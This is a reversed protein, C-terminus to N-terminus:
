SKEIMSFLFFVSVTSAGSSHSLIIFAHRTCGDGKLTTFTSCVSKRFTFFVTVGRNKALALGGTLNFPNLIYRILASCGNSSTLSVYWPGQLVQVMRFLFHRGVSSSKSCM